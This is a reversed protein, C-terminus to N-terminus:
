RISTSKSTSKGALEKVRRVVEPYFPAMTSPNSMKVEIEKLFDKRKFFESVIPEPAIGASIIANKLILPYYPGSPPYTQLMKTEIENLVDEFITSPVNKGYVGLSAVVSFVHPLKPFKKFLFESKFCEDVVSLKLGRFFQGEENHLVQLNLHDLFIYREIWDVCTPISDRYDVYIEPEAGIIGMILGTVHRMYGERAEASFTFIQPFKDLLSPLVYNRTKTVFPRLPHFAMKKINKVSNLPVIKPFLVASKEYCKQGERNIMVIDELTTAMLRAYHEQLQVDKEATSLAIVIQDMFKFRENFHAQVGREHLNASYAAFTNSYLPRLGDQDLGSFTGDLLYHFLCIRNNGKEAISLLRMKLHTLLTVPQKKSGGPFKKEKCKKLVEISLKKTQLFKFQELLLRDAEESADLDLLWNLLNMQLEANVLAAAEQNLLITKVSQFLQVLASESGKFEQMSNQLLHALRSVREEKNMHRVSLSIFDISKSEIGLEFLRNISRSKAKDEIGLTEQLSLLYEMLALNKSGHAKKFLLEHLEKKSSADIKPSAFLIRLLDFQKVYKEEQEEVGHHFVNYIAWFAMETSNLFDIRIDNQRLPSRDWSELFTAILASEKEKNTALRKFLMLWDDPDLFRKDKQLIQQIEALSFSSLDPINKFSVETQDVEKQLEEPLKWQLSRIAIERKIEPATQHLQLIAANWQQKATKGGGYFRKIIQWSFQQENPHASLNLATKSLMLFQKKTPSSIQDFVEQAFTHWYHFQSCNQESIRELLHLPIRAVLKGHVAPRDLLRLFLSFVEGHLSEDAKSLTLLRDIEVKDWESKNSVEPRDLLRLLDSTPNQFCEVSVKKLVNKLEPVQAEELRSFCGCMFRLHADNLSPLHRIYSSFLTVAQEKKEIGLAFVIAKELNGGLVEPTLWMSLNKSLLVAVQPLTAAIESEQQQFYKNLLQAITSRVLQTHTSFDSSSHKGKKIVKLALDLATTLNNEELALSILDCQVEILLKRSELGFIKWEALRNLVTRDNAAALRCLRLQKVLLTQHKPNLHEVRILAALSLAEQLSETSPAVTTLASILSLLLKTQNSSSIVAKSSQTLALVEKVVKRTDFKSHKSHYRVSSMLLDFRNQPTYGFQALNSIWDYCLDLQNNEVWSRQMVLHECDTLRIARERKESKLVINALRHLKDVLQKPNQHYRLLSESNNWIMKYTQVMKRDEVAEPIDLGTLWDNFYINFRRSSTSLLNLLLSQVAPIKVIDPQSKLIGKLLNFSLSHGKQFIKESILNLIKDFHTNLLQLGKEQNQQLLLHFALLVLSKRLRSQKLIPEVGSKLIEDLIFPLYPRISEQIYARNIFSAKALTLHALHARLAEKRPFNPPIKEFLQYFSLADSHITATAYTALKSSLDVWIEIEESNLLSFNTRLLRHLAKGIAYHSLDHKVKALLRNKRRVIPQSPVTPVTEKTEEAVIEEEVTEGEEDSEIRELAPMEENLHAQAVTELTQYAEPGSPIAAIYQQMLPASALYYVRGSTQMDFVPSSRTAYFVELLTTQLVESRMGELGARELGAHLLSLLCYEKGPAYKKQISVLHEIEAVQLSLTSLDETLYLADFFIPLSPLIELLNTSFLSSSPVARQLLKYAREALIKKNPDTPHFSELEQVILSFTQNPVVKELSDLITLFKNFFEPSSGYGSERKLEHIVSECIERKGEKVLFAYYNLLMNESGVERPFNHESVKRGSLKYILQLAFKYCQENPSNLLKPIADLVLLKPIKKGSCFYNVFLLSAAILDFIPHDRGLLETASEYIQKNSTFLEKHQELVSPLAQITDPLLAAAQDFLLDWIQIPLNDFQKDKIVMLWAPLNWPILCHAESKQDLLIKLAPKQKYSVLQVSPKEQSSQVPSRSALPLLASLAMYADIFEPPLDYTYRLTAISNTTTASTSQKSKKLEPHLSSWLLQWINDESSLVENKAKLHEKVAKEFQLAISSKAQPSNPFRKHSIRKIQYASSHVFDRQTNPDGFFGIIAKEILHKQRILQHKIAFSLSDFIVVANAGITQRMGILNLGRQCLAELLCVEQSEMHVELVEPVVRGQSNLVISDLQVVFHLNSNEFENNEVQNAIGFDTNDVSSLTYGKPEPQSLQDLDGDWYKDLYAHKVSEAREHASLDVLGKIERGIFSRYFTTLDTIQKWSLEENKIRGDLDQSKRAINAFFQPTLLRMIAPNVHEAQQFLATIVGEPLSSIPDSGIFRFEKIPIKNEKAFRYLYYLAQGWTFVSGDKLKIVRNLRETAYVKLFKHYAKSILLNAIEPVLQGSATLVGDDFAQKITQDEPSDKSFFTPIKRESELVTRLSEPLQEGRSIIRVSPTTATALHQPSSLIVLNSGIEISSSM